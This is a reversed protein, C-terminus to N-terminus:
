AATTPLGDAYAKVSEYRVLRRRGHYQSVLVQEDCLKYVSWPTLSLIRAAENVSVFIPEPTDDTM